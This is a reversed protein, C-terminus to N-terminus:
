AYLPTEKFSNIWRAAEEPDSFFRENERSFRNEYLEMKGTDQHTHAAAICQVGRYRFYRIGSADAEFLDTYGVKWGYQALTLPIITRFFKHAELDIARFGYMNILIKFETSNKLKSLCYYLSHEWQEIEVKNLEGSIQTVVLNREAFWETKTIKALTM